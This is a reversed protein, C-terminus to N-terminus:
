RSDIGQRIRDAQEDEWRGQAEYDEALSRLVAATRPWRDRIRAEWGRFKSALEREQQGGDTLGRTTVGRNNFIQNRFGRQVHDSALREIASRVPLTPWTGDDDVKAQAFVHGIYQAGIDSRDAAALLPLARDLWQGLAAEDVAAGRATSGPVVRWEQLVHFANRAAEPAPRDEEAGDARKFAISLIFVFFGPDAALRRELTPASAGFGLGPFLRWELIALRGEDFKASRLADLLSQLHYPAIQIDKTPKDIFAELADAILGPDAPPKARDAYLALLDVAANTRGHALLHSTLENIFRFDPGLGIPMFEQWYTTEVEPGLSSALEWVDPFLTSVRLVRAQAVPHRDLALLISRTWELKGDAFKRVAYGLGLNIRNINTSELDDALDSPSLEISAAAISWGLSYPEKVADRLRRLGDIGSAHAIEHVAAIRTEAVLAEYGEFDQTRPIGLDPIQSNFLFEHRTLLDAPQFRAALGELEAIDGEPLAWAANPHARHQKALEDLAKWIEERQTQSLV